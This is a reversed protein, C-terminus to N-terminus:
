RRQAETFIAGFNEVLAQAFEMDELNYPVEVIPISPSLHKRLEEVFVRDQEPNHLVTGERDIASWGKLPVVFRAPGQAKNLKEAYVLAAASLEEDDFRTMARLEDIKLHPRSAYKERNTRTVGCGTLNICCPALVMPVGRECIADLREKGAARNGGFMEEVVGAPVIDIVGDFFGQSILRDMARDSIGQAHFTFVHHGSAELLSAVQETCRPSFGIETIAVSPHPLRLSSPDGSEEVMGSIVGAVQGIAHTLLDNMGTFEMIIQMVLIDMADFWRGVYVPMAASTALVKPIGFPLAQMARSGLLAITAGGMAAAGHVDGRALLDLMKRKAGETMVETKFLRDESELIEAIDKGVSGAIEEPTIDGKLESRSGMSVDMILARHGRAIIREKLFQLQEGKTDLSGIIVITKDM